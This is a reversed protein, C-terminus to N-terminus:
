DHSGHRVSVASSARTYFSLTLEADVDDSGINARQVHVTDVSLSKMSRLAELVFTRIQIYKGHLPFQLRYRCVHALDDCNIAYQAQSFDLELDQALRFLTQTVHDIGNPDGLTQQFNELEHVSTKMSAVTTFPTERTLQEVKDREAQVVDLQPTVDVVVLCQLALALLVLAAAIWVGPHLRRVGSQLGLGIDRWRMANM